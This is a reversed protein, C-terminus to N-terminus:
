SVTIIFYDMVMRVFTIQSANLEGSQLFDVFAKDVASSDLGVVNRILEGLPKDGYNEKYMERKSEGNEFLIREIEELEASTIPLNNKLKHVTLHNKNKRIIAEVREKYSTLSEYSSIPERVEVGDVDLDDEFNTYIPLQRERDLYKILERLALRVDDLKKADVENWFRESQIEKDISTTIFDSPHKRRRM